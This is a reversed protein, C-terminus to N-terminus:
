DAAIVVGQVRRRKVTMREYLREVASSGTREFLAPILAHALCALGALILTVGFAGAVVLHEAYGEGVSQPHEHFIRKIM